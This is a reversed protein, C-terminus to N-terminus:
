REALSHTDLLPPHLIHVAPRQHPETSAGLLGINPHQEFNSLEIKTQTTKKLIIVLIYM